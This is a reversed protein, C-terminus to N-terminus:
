INTLLQSVVFSPSFCIRFICKFFLKERQVFSGHELIVNRYVHCLHAKKFSHMLCRCDFILANYPHANQAAVNEYILDVIVKADIEIILKCIHLSHALKLGDRLGWLEAPHM